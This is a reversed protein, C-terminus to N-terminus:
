ILKTIFEKKIQSKNEFVIKAEDLLASIYLGMTKFNSPVFFYYGLSGPITNIENIYVKGKKDAIYDIRVVGYLGLKEYIFKSMQKLREELKSPLSAFTKKEALYGGGKSGQKNGFANKQAVIGGKSSSNSGIYKDNFSLIEESKTPKDISSVLVEGKYKMCAVNYEEMGDLVAKEVLINKDFEFAVKIAEELEEPTKVVKIGISSGLTSPKLILPFGLGDAKQMTAQKNMLFEEETITFYKIVPLKHSKFFQKSLIKDMCIGLATMDGSSVAIGAWELLATLTGNEGMGGHCCNLAVKTEIKKEKIGSKYYLGGQKLSVKKFGNSKYTKNFDKFLSINFNDKTYIYWQDKKDIYLPLLDYKSGRAKNYIILASIISIDHEFSKGGFVLAAKEKGM